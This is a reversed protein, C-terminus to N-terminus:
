VDERTVVNDEKINNEKKNEVSKAENKNKVQRQYENITRKLEIGDIEENKLLKESVFKILESNEKVFEKADNWAIDLIKKAEENFKSNTNDDTKVLPFLDSMGLHEVMYRALITAQALDSKCGDSFQGYFHEEAACSVLMVTLTKVFDSKKQFKEQVQYFTCGAYGKEKNAKITVKLVTISNKFACTAHSSEHM